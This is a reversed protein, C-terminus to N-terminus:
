YNTLPVRYGILKLSATSTNIVGRAKLPGTNKVSPLILEFCTGIDKSSSLQVEVALLRAIRNVMALGLGLGPSSDHIQFFEQWILDLKDKDIGIGSDKIQLSLTDGKSHLSCRVFGSGTYKIANDLLNRLMRSFLDADTKVYLDPPVDVQLSLFKHSARPEISECVLTTLKSLNVLKIDVPMAQSDLKSIDLLSDIEDDLSKIAKDMKLAISKSTTDLPRAAIAASFLSMAHLPQRLDHSAEALFRTKAANATKEARLASQLKNHSTLSSLFFGYLHNVLASTVLCLQLLLVVVVFQILTSVLNNPDILWVLLLASLVPISEALCVPKFGHCTATSAAAAGLLIMSSLSRTEVTMHQAFICVSAISMGSIFASIQAKRIRASASGTDPNTINKAVRLKPIQALAAVGAWVIVATSQLQTHLVVSIAVIVALLPIITIKSSKSFCQLIAENHAALLDSNKRLATNEVKSGAFPLAVDPTM